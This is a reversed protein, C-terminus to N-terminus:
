RACETPGRGVGWGLGRIPRLAGVCGIAVFFRHTVGSRVFCEGYKRQCRFFLSGMRPRPPPSRSGTGTWARMGRDLWRVAPEGAGARSVAERRSCFRPWAPKRTMGRGPGTIYSRAVLSEAEVPAERVQNNLIVHITGGVAFDPVRSMQMCEYVVGQGAFAADGHILVSMSRKMSEQPRLTGPGAPGRPKCTFSPILALAPSM